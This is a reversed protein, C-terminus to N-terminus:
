DLQPSGHARAHAQPRPSCHAAPPRVQPPAAHGTGPCRCTLNWGSTCTAPSHRVTAHPLRGCPLLFGVAPICGHLNCVPSIPVQSAVPRRQVPPRRRPDLRPARLRARSTPFIPFRTPPRCRALPCAPPSHSCAPPGAAPALMRFPQCRISKAAVLCQAYSALHPVPCKQSRSQARHFIDPGPASM